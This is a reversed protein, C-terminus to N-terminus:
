KKIMNRSTSAIKKSKSVHIQACKKPGLELRKSEVFYNTICNSKFADTGCKSMNCLDDIMGLTPIQVTDKYLLLGNGSKYSLDGLQRLSTTCLLPGFVTGQM